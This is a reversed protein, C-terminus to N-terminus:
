VRTLAQMASAGPKWCRDLVMFSIGFLKGAIQHAHAFEM